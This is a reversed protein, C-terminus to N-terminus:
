RVVVIAARDDVGARVVVVGGAAPELIRSVILACEDVFVEAALGFVHGPSERAARKGGDSVERDDGHM